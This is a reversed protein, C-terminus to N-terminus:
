LFDILCCIIYIGSFMEVAKMFNDRTLIRRYNHYFVVYTPNKFENKKNFTSRKAFIFQM